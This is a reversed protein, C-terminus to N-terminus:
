ELAISRGKQLSFKGAMNSQGSCLWVEGVLVGSFTIENSGKITMTKREKSTKLPNLKVMWKGQDDATAEHEQGDFSVTVKEGPDAGGWVAVPLDRQLVMNDSFVDAVEVEAFIITPMVIFSAALILETMRKHM